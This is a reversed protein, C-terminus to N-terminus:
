SPEHGVMFQDQEADHNDMFQVFFVFFFDVSWPWGHGREVRACLFVGGEGEHIFMFCPMMHKHKDMVRGGVGSPDHVFM